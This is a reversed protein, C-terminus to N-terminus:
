VTPPTPPAVPPAESKLMSGAVLSKLLGWFCVWLVTFPVTILPNFMFKMISRSMERQSEPANMEDFKAETADMIRNAFDPDILKAYILSFAGAVLGAILAIKMGKRFAIGSTIEGNLEEDRIEKIGRYITFFTVVMLVTNLLLPFVGGKATIGTLNGVLTFIVYVSATILGWKLAISM